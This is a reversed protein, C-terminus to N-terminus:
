ASEDEEDADNQKQLLVKEKGKNELPLTYVKCQEAAGTQLLSDAQVVRTQHTEAARIGDEQVGGIQTQQVGASPQGDIGAADFGKDAGGSPEISNMAKDLTVSDFHTQTTSNINGYLYTDGLSSNSSSTTGGLSVNNFNVYTVCSTNPNNFIYRGRTGSTASISGGLVYLKSGGGSLGSGDRATNEAVLGNNFYLIGSNNIAGGSYSAFNYKFIGGDIIGTSNKGIHVGGGSSRCQNAFIIGGLIKISGGDSVNIGGGNGTTNNSYNSSEQAPTTADKNGIVGSYLEFAANSIYIGGGGASGGRNNYIDGGSMTSIIWESAGSIYAGGGSLRSTNRYINGGSMNFAARLVCVGGGNVADNGSISGSVINLKTRQSAGLNNSTAYIYVGGGNNTAKNNSISGGVINCTNSSGAYIGGGDAGALNYMISAGTSVDITRVQSSTSIIGGGSRTAYNYAITCRSLSLLGPTSVYIGGGNAAKNSYSTTTATTRAAGDGIIADGDITCDGICVIAGGNGGANCGYIRGGYFLIGGARIGGGDRAATCNYIQSKNSNLYACMIGGGNYGSTCAYITSNSLNVSGLSLNIAGGSGVSTCSSIISNQMTVSLNASGSREDIAGGGDGTAECDTITSDQLTVTNNTLIAGGNYATCGQIVSSDKLTISANNAYIAGGASKPTINSATNAHCNIIKCNSLTLKDSYMFIAGGDHSASCDQITGNSANVNHAMIAGGSRATCGSIVFDNLTITNAITARIAGGSVGATCNTITAGDINLVFNDSDTYIAGGYQAQCGDIIAGNILYVQSNNDGYIAGGNNGDTLQPTKCNSISAMCILVGRNIAIAGGKAATCSSISVGKGLTISNETLNYIAGGRDAQCDSIQLSSIFIDKATKAYIAGGRNTATCNSITGGNIILKGDEDVFIAGGNEAQCDSITGGNIILTAGSGVFIAGGNVGTAGAINGSNITYTGKTIQLVAPVTAMEVAASSFRRSASISNNISENQQETQTEDATKTDELDVLDGAADYIEVDCVATGAQLAAANLRLGGTGVVNNQEEDQGQVPLNATAANLNAADKNVNKNLLCNNYVGGGVLTSFLLCVVTAVFLKFKKM